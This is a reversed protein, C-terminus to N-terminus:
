VKECVLQGARSSGRDRKGDKTYVEGAADVARQRGVTSVALPDFRRQAIEKLAVTLAKSRSVPSIDM